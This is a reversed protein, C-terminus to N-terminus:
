LWARAMWCTAACALAVVFSVGASPLHLLKGGALALGQGPPYKSMYTPVFLEHFTDLSKWAPPTPNTLRGELFTDAALLNSFEDHIRPLPPGAELVRVSALGFSVAFCILPPVWPLSFIYRLSARVATWRVGLPARGLSISIATVPCGVILAIWSWWAVAFSAWDM